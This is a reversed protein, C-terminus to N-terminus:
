RPQWHMVLTIPLTATQMQVPILVHRNLCHKGSDEIAGNPRHQRRVDRLQQREWHMVAVRKLPQQNRLRASPIARAM